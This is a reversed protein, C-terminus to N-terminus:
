RWIFFKKLFSFFLFLNTTSAILLLVFIRLKRCVVFLLELLCPCAHTYKNIGVGVNKPVMNYINSKNNIEINM